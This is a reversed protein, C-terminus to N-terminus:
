SAREGTTQRREEMGEPPQSGREPRAQIVAPQKEPPQPNPSEEEEDDDGEDTEDVLYSALAKSVAGV